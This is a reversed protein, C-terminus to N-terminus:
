SNKRKFVVVVVDSKPRYTEAEVGWIYKAQQGVVDAVGVAAYNAAYKQFWDFIFRESDPRPLWSLRAKVFVIYEPHNAEIERSMEQQMSLAYQQHEMLPYMYIYGTASRLRSYFYIEPESGVVAITSGPNAQQKLYDSIVIAEPFPNGGYVGRCAVTPDLQFLFEEQLYISYAAALLFVFVPVSALVPSRSSDFLKHAISSVAVGALLSVVPLFLIFYHDRFYFGPCVAAWSFLLLGLMFLLQQRARSDWGLMGLGLAAVIWVPWCSEVVHPANIWLTQWGEALSQSTGYKSAYSFTWFWMRALEHTSLLGICTLALPVACGAVYILLNSAGRRWKRESQQFETLALYVGCFLAFFLGPQKCLFALGALVGALFYHLPRRSEKAKLTFILAAVAALVVFHTAHAAFGLVSTSTSLLAYSAAAVFGALPGFLRRGLIFILFVTGANVVLLGLHIGSPTQGFLAMLLAYVAHTGPLKMSYALRYPPIGQLILQGAYAYEGEDRELPMDRLRFRIAAFFVIVVGLMALYFWPSIAPSASPKRASRRNRRPSM